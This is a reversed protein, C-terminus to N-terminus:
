ENPMVCIALVVAGEVIAQQTYFTIYINKLNVLRTPELNRHCVYTAHTNYRLLFLPSGQM